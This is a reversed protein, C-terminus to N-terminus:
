SEAHQWAHGFFFFIRILTKLPRGPQGGDVWNFEIRSKGVGINHGIFRNSILRLCAVNERAETGKSNGSGPVAM